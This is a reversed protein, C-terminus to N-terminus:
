VLAIVLYQTMQVFKHLHRQTNWIGSPTYSDQRFKNPHNTVQFTALKKLQPGGILELLGYPSFLGKQDNKTKKIDM